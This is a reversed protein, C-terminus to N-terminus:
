KNIVQIAGIPTEGRVTLPVCIMNRTLFTGEKDIVAFFRPDSKVDNILVSEQKEIVWGVIGRGAPMKQGELRRGDGGRMAWFTLETLTNNLLFVTGAEAGLRLKLHDVAVGIIERTSLSSNLLLPLKALFAIRDIGRTLAQSHEDSRNLKTVLDNLRRLNEDKKAQRLKRSSNVNWSHNSLLELTRQLFLNRDFGLEKRLLDGMTFFDERGFNSLDADLLYKSLENSAVQKLGTPTEVLRTDLIMSEVLKIEEASFDGQKEMAARAMRAGISENNIPSAIFGADHYAAAVALLEIERDTLGDLMSFLVTEHLVDETHAASHYHLNKPLESKLRALIESILPKSKLVNVLEEPERAPQSSEESTM